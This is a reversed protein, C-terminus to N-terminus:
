AFHVYLNCLGAVGECALPSRRTVHYQIPNQVVKLIFACGQKGASETTLANFHIGNLLSASQYFVACWQQEREPQTQVCM